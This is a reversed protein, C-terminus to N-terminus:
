HGPHLPHEAHRLRAPVVGATGDHLLAGTPWSTGRVLRDGHDQSNRPLVCWPTIAQFLYCCLYKLVNQSHIEMPSALPMIKLLKM